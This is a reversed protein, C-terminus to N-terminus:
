WDGRKLGRKYAALLEYSMGTYGLVMGGYLFTKGLLLDDVWFAWFMVFLGLACYAVVKALTRALDRRLIARSEREAEAREAGIKAYMDKLNSM